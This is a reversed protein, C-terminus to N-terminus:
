AEGRRFQIRNALRIIELLQKKADDVQHQYGTIQRVATMAKGVADIIQQADKRNLDRASV